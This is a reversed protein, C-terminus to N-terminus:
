RAHELLREIQLAEPLQLRRAEDVAMILLARAEERDQEGGRLLLTGALNWRGFLLFRADGLREHVERRIRLSGDLDGRAQLITAIRGMAVARAHVDGLREYVPLQEDTRINLAEDLQGRAQLIDAIKGMTLARERVDGLREYVPLEEENRIKLAEDVQGRAQLIDAIFGASIAAEREAGRALDLDRKDKAASLARDSFGSRLAVQVLVWQVDSRDADSMEGILTADCFQLWAHYPGADRAFYMGARAIRVRDLLPVQTLWQSLAVIEQHLQGWRQGQDEGGRRLRTLFWETMRSNTADNDARPRVLEALL